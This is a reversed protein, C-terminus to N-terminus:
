IKYRFKPCKSDLPALEDLIQNAKAELGALEPYFVKVLSGGCDLHSANDLIRNRLRITNKLEHKLEEIRSIGLTIM